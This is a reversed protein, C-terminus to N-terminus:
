HCVWGTGNMGYACCSLIPSQKELNVRKSRSHETCCPWREYSTARRWACATKPVSLSHIHMWWGQPIALLGGWSMPIQRLYYAMRAVAWSDGRSWMWSNLVTLELLHFFLKTNWKLTHWSMLYSNTMHYSNDVYGRNWNYKEVISTEHSLQQKWLFQRRSTTTRYQDAHLSRMQEELRIRYYRGQKEGKHWGKEIETTKTWLWPANRKQQAASDWM